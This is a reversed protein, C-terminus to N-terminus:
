VYDVLENKYNLFSHNISVGLVDKIESFSLKISLNDKKKIYEWLKIYKSM